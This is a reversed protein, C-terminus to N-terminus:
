KDRKAADVDLMQGKNGMTVAISMIFKLVDETDLRYNWSKNFCLEVAGQAMAWGALYHYHPPVDELIDRDILKKVMNNLANENSLRVAYLEKMQEAVEEEDELRIELHQVLRDLEPRQLRSRLYAMSAAGPVGNETDEIGHKLNDTINREYNLLIRMLIENKSLFHKYVTGKGINALEAIDSVTVRDIGHKIFLEQAAEIIREERALFAKKKARIRETSSLNSRSM